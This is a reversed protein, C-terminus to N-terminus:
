AAGARPAVVRYCCRAPSRRAGKRAPAAHVEFGLPTRNHVFVLVADLSTLFVQYRTADVAAAYRPVLLVECWGGILEAEGLQELWGGHDIVMPPECSMACVAM